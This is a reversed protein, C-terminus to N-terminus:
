FKQVGIFNLIQEVFPALIKTSQEMTGIWDMTVFHMHTEHGHPKSDIKWANAGTHTTASLGEVQTDSLRIRRTCSMRFSRRGGGNTRRCLLRVADLENSVVVPM